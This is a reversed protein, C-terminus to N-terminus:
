TRNNQNLWRTYLVALSVRDRVGIQSFTKFITQRSTNPAIHLLAAIQKDTNGQAVLDVIQLRRKSLIGFDPIEDTLANM